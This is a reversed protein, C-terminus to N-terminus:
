ERDPSLIMCPTSSADTCFQTSVSRTLSTRSSPLLIVRVVSGIETPPSIRVVSNTQSRTCYAGRRCHDQTGIRHQFLARMKSRHILRKNACVPSSSRQAVPGGWDAAEKPIHNPAFSVRLFRHCSGRFKRWFYTSDTVKLSVSIFCDLNVSSRIM